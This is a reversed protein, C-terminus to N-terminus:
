IILESAIILNSDKQPKNTNSENKVSYNKAIYNDFMEIREELFDNWTVDKEIYNFMMKGGNGHNFNFIDHGLEHYIIYFRKADSISTWKDPDVYIKIQSNDNMGVALALTANGELQKFLITKNQKNDILSNSVAEVLSHEGKKYYKEMLKKLYVAYDLFFTDVIGALNFTDNSLFSYFKDDYHFGIKDVSTPKYHNTSSEYWFYNDAYYPENAREISKSKKVSEPNRNDSAYIYNLSQDTIIFNYPLSSRWSNFNPKKTLVKTKVAMSIGTNLPWFYYSMFIKNTNSGNHGSWKILGEETENRTINYRYGGLKLYDAADSETLKEESKYQSHLTSSLLFLFFVSRIIM